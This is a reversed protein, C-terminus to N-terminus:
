KPCYVTLGTPRTDKGLVQSVYQFQLKKTSGDCRKTLAEKVKRQCDLSRAEVAEAVVAGSADLAKCRVEDRKGSSASAAAAASAGSRIKASCSTGLSLVEDLKFSRPQACDIAKAKEVEETCKPNLTKKLVECSKTKGKDVEAQAEEKTKAEGAFSLAAVLAGCCSVLQFLAKM